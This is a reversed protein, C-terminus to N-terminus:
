YINPFTSLIDMYEPCYCPSWAILLACVFSRTPLREWGWPGKASLQLIMKEVRKMVCFAARRAKWETRDM